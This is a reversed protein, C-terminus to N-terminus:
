MAGPCASVNSSALSASSNVGVSASSCVSAATRPACTLSTAAAAGPRVAVRRRWGDDPGAAHRVRGAECRRRLPATRARRGGGANRRLRLARADARGELRTTRALSRWICRSRSPQAQARALDGDEDVVTVAGVVIGVDDNGIWERMLRVMDPNACGGIKVESAIRGALAAMRPKWTGILLPMHDRVPAYEFGAGEALSFHAGSFGSRDGAFLRRVIEAAEAM